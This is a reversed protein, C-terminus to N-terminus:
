DKHIDHKKCKSHFRPYGNGDWKNIKETYDKLISDAKSRDLKGEKVLKEIHTKRNNILKERKQELPLNNFIKIEKIKSDIKAIKEDAIEKSIKGEKVLSQIKEKKNELAKIPDKIFDEHKIKLDKDARENAEKVFINNVFGKSANTDNNAFALSSSLSVILAATSIIKSIKM